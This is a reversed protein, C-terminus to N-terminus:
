QASTAKAVDSFVRSFHNNVLREVRTPAKISTSKLKQNYRIIKKYCESKEESLQLLENSLERGKKIQADIQNVLEENQTKLKKNEEQMVMQAM